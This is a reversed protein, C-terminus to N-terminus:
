LWKDKQNYLSILCLSADEKFEVDDDKVCGIDGVEVDRVEVTDEISCIMASEEIEDNVKTHEIM